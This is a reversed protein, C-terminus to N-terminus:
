SSHEADAASTDEAPAAPWPAKERIREARATAHSLVPNAVLLLVAILIAKAGAQSWGEHIVVAAPIAIGGALSVPALFHLQDYVNRFMLLGLSGVLCGLLGVLLLLDVSFDRLTM